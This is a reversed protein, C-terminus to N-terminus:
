RRLKALKKKSLKRKGGTPQLSEDLENSRKRSDQSPQLGFTQPQSQVLQIAAALVSPDINVTPAADSPTCALEEQTVAAAARRLVRRGRQVRQPLGDGDLNSYVSDSVTTLDVRAAPNPAATQPVPAASIGCHAAAVAKIADARATAAISSSPPPTTTEPGSISGVVPSGRAKDYPIKDRPDLYVPAKAAQIHATAGSPTPVHRTKKRWHVVRFTGQVTMSDSVALQSIAPYDPGTSEMAAGLINMIAWWTDDGISSADHARAYFKLITEYVLRSVTYSYESCAPGTGFPIVNQGAQFCAELRSHVYVMEESASLNAPLAAIWSLVQEDVARLVHSVCQVILISRWNVNKTSAIMSRFTSIGLPQASQPLFYLSAAVGANIRRLVDSVVGQPIPAFWGGRLSGTCYAEWSKFPVIVTKFNNCRDRINRHLPLLYMAFKDEGPPHVTEYFLIGTDKVKVGNAAPENRLKSFSGEMVGKVFPVNQM